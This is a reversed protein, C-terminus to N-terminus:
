LFLIHGAGSWMLHYSMWGVEAKHSAGEQTQTPVWAVLRISIQKQFSQDSLTAASNAHAPGPGGHSSKRKVACAWSRGSAAGAEPFLRPLLIWSLSAGLWNRGSAVRM